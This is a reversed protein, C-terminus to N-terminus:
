CRVLSEVEFGGGVVWVEVWWVWFELLGVLGFVVLSGFGLGLWGFGLVLWVGVGVLGWGFGFGFGFLWINKVM